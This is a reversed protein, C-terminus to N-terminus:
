SECDELTDRGPGPECKDRGADGDLHDPGPGAIIHDNGSSGELHDGDDGGELFDNGPGAIVRDVGGGGYISDPGDRGWIRDQGRGGSVYDGDPGGILLDAGGQGVIAHGFQYLKPNFAGTGNRGDLYVSDDGPGGAVYYANVEGIARADLDADENLKMGRTGGIITDSLSSGRVAFDALGYLHNGTGAADFRFEIESLGKTEPTQGPEFYGNSLDLFLNASGEDSLDVYDVRDTNHVTAGDCDRFQDFHGKKFVISSGERTLEGGYNYATVTVRGNSEDFECTNRSRGALSHSAGVVSALFFASLAIIAPARRSLTM